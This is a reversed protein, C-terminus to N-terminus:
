GAVPVARTLMHARRLRGDDAFHGFFCVEIDLERKPDRVHMAYRAALRGEAAFAEHVSMRLGPRRQRIPRTHAVLKARDMWHGDAIQVIDSTHYRDVVAEADEESSLLDEHFGTIFDAIFRGPDNTDFPRM